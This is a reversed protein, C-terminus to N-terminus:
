TSGSNLTSNYEWGPIKFTAEHAMNPIKRRFVRPFKSDLFKNSFATKASFVVTIESNQNRRALAFGGIYSPFDVGV